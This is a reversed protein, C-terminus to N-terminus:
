FIGLIKPKKIPLEEDNVLFTCAIKWTSKVRSARPFSGMTDYTIPDVRDGSSRSGPQTNPKPTMHKHTM